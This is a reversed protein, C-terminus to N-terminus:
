EDTSHRDVRQTVPAKPLESAACKWRNAADFFGTVVEPQDLRDALRTLEDVLTAILPKLYDRNTALVGAWTTAPSAALRTTDRLGSGSWHLEAEGLAEGVIKMLLTATVQPLHSGAAMVRDHWEPDAPVPIAGLGDVFARARASTEPPASGDVLFWARADFLDARAHRPGSDTGGAMPHGGIFGTLGARAARSMIARKTSGTDMVLAQADVRAAVAPMMDLIADVPAALMVVEAGSVVAIDPSAVDCLRAVTEHLLRRPEDVAVIRVAPWRRKAALAISTGILGVGVIAISTPTYDSM